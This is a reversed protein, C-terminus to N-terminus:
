PLSRNKRHRSLITLANTEAPPAVVIVVVAVVVPPMVVTLFLATAACTALSTKASAAARWEELVGRPASPAPLRDVERGGRTLWAGAVASVFPCCGYSMHTSSVMATTFFLGGFVM